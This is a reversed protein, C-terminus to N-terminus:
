LLPVHASPVAWAPTAESEVDVEQEPAVTAQMGTDHFRHNAIRVRVEHHLHFQPLHVLRLRPQHCGAAVGSPLHHPHPAHVFPVRLEPLQVLLHAMGGGGQRGQM